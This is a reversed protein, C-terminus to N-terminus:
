KSKGKPDKEQRAKVEERVWKQDEKSLRTLAVRFTQKNLGELSVMGSKLDIFKGRSSVRKREKGETYSWPRYAPDKKRAEMERQHYIMNDHMIRDEEPSGKRVATNQGHGTTTTLLIVVTLFISRM